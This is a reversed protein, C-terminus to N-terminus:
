PIITMKFDRSDHQERDHATYTEFLKIIIQQEQSYSFLAHM